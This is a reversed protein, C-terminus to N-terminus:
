PLGGHRMAEESLYSRSFPFGLSPLVSVGPSHTPFPHLPPLADWILWTVSPLNSLNVNGTFANDSLDLSVFNAPFQSLDVEGSLDNEQVWLEQMNQPLNSLDVGGTFANAGLQFICLASPLSDLKVEGSLRNEFLYCNELTRPLYDCAPSGTMPIGLMGQGVMRGYPSWDM